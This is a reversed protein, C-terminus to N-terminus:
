GGGGREFAQLRSELQDIRELLELALAAGALNVGLDRELRVVVSARRLSGPHFRWAEPADGSAELIGYEVMQAILEIDVGCSLVLDAITVQVTDDLVVGQLVPLPTESM